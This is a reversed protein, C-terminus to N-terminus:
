LREHIIRALQWTFKRGLDFQRSNAADEAFEALTAQFHGAGAGRAFVDRSRAPQIFGPLEM